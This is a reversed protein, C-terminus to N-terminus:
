QKGGFNFTISQSSLQDDLNYIKVPKDSDAIHMKQVNSEEDLEREKESKVDGMRAKIYVVVLCKTKHLIIGTKHLSRDAITM